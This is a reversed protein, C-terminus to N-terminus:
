KAREMTEDFEPSQFESSSQNQRRAVAAALIAAVIFMAAEGMFVITYAPVPSGLAIRAADVALTGTLGGLAFAIAQAAGWLGMRVGERSTGDNAMNFMSGIAAVAFM